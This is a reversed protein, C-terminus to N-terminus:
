SSPTPWPAVFRFPVIRSIREFDKTNATVLTIGAERCSLALLVDNGFSKSIEFPRLGQERILRSLLEGSTQWARFSPTLLRGRQAFPEVIHRRLARLDSASRVGTLLEQVVVASLFEFPAFLTHFRVLEQKAQEHRLGDIFLNTDLTYKREVRSV